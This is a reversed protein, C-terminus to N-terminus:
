GYGTHATPEFQLTLGEWAVLMQVSYIYRGDGSITPFRHSPMNANALYNTPFGFKNVSIRQNHGLGHHYLYIDDTLFDDQYQVVPRGNTATSTNQGAAMESFGHIVPSPLVQATARSFGSGQILMNTRQVVGLASPNNSNVRGSLAKLTFSFGNTLNDDIQPGELLANPNAWQNNIMTILRDRISSLNNDATSVTLPTTPFQATDFFLGTTARGSKESM